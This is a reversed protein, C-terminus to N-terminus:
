RPFRSASSLDNEGRNVMSHSNWPHGYTPHSNSRKADATLRKEQERWAEFANKELPTMQAYAIGERLKPRKLLGTQKIPTQRKRALMARRELDFQMSMAFLREDESEYGDYGPHYESGLEERDFIEDDGKYFSTEKAFVRGKDSYWSGARWAGLKENIITYKGRNDIFVLKSSENCLAVLMDAQAKTFPHEWANRRILRALRVSDSVDSDVASLGSFVGNHAMVLRGGHIVLPQTNTENNPGCTGWRFHILLPGRKVSARIRDYEKLFPEIEMYAKSVALEGSADIYALGAGDSNRAFGRTLVSQRIKAHKINPSFIILCM